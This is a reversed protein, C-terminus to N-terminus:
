SAVPLACGGIQVCLTELGNTLKIVAHTMAHRLHLWLRPVFLELRGVAMM